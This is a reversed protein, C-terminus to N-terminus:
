YDPLSSETHRLKTVTHRLSMANPPTGELQKFSCFDLCIHNKRMKSISYTEMELHTRTKYSEEDHYIYNHM